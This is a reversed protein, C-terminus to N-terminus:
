PLIFFDEFLMVGFACSYVGFRGAPLPQLDTAQLLMKGNLRATLEGGRVDLEIEYWQRPAFGPGELTALPTAVGDVVKELVYKPTTEDEHNLLRFRYYSAKDGVEGQYRAVLGAVGHFTDYFNVRATADAYEGTALTVTQFPRSENFEGAFHQQLHGDAVIWNMRDKSMVGDLDVVQWDNLCDTGAFETALRPEAPLGVPAIPNPNITPAQPEPLYQLLLGSEAHASSLGIWIGGSILLGASCLFITLIAYAVLLYTRSRPLKM